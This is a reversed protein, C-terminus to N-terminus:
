MAIPSVPKSVDGVFYIWVLFDIITNHQIAWDQLNQRKSICALACASFVGVNAVHQANGLAQRMHSYKLGLLPKHVQYLPVGAVKALTPFSAFGMSAFLERLLFMRQAYPSAILGSSRRLTPIASSVGSWTVWGGDPEDSLCVALDEFGCRNGSDLQCWLHTYTRLRTMESNNLAALPHLSHIQTALRYGRLHQRYQAIHFLDEDIDAKKGCLVASPRM